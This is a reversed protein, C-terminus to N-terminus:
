ILIIKLSPLITELQLRHEPVQIQQMSGLDRIETNFSHLFLIRSEPSPLYIFHFNNETPKTFALKYMPGQDPVQITDLIPSSVCDAAHHNSSNDIYRDWKPSQTYHEQGASTTHPTTKLQWNWSCHTGKILEVPKIFIGIGSINRIKIIGNSIM